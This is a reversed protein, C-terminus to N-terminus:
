RRVWMQEADVDLRKEEEDLIVDLVDKGDRVLTVSTVRGKVETERFVVSRNGRAHQETCWLRLTLEAHEHESSFLTAGTVGPFALLADFLDRLAAIEDKAIQVLPIPQRKTAIM